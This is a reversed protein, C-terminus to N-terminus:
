HQATNEKSGKGTAERERIQKTIAEAIAPSLSDSFRRIKIDRWFSRKASVRILWVCILCAAHDESESGLLDRKCRRSVNHIVVGRVTISFM